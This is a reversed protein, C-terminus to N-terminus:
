RRRKPDSLQIVGCDLASDRQAQRRVGLLFPLRHLPGASRLPSPAKSRKVPYRRLGFRLRAASAEASWFSNWARMFQHILFPINTMFPFRCTPKAAIPAAIATPIMPMFAESATPRFGSADVLIRTWDIRAMAKASA